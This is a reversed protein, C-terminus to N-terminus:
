CERLRVSPRRVKDQPVVIPKILVKLGAAHATRIASVVSADSPSEYNYHIHSSNWRDVCLYLMISLFDNGDDAAEQIVGATSAQGLTDSDFTFITMGRQTADPLRQAASITLLCFLAMGLAMQAHRLVCHKGGLMTCQAASLRRLRSGDPCSAASFLLTVSFLASPRIGRSPRHLAALECREAAALLSVRGGFRALGSNSAVCRRSIESGGIVLKRCGLCSDNPEHTIRRFDAMSEAESPTGHERLRSSAAKVSLMNVTPSDCRTSRLNGLPEHALM